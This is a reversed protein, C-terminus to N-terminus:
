KLHQLCGPMRAIGLFERGHKEGAPVWLGNDRFEVTIVGSDDAFQDFNALMAEIMDRTLEATATENRTRVSLM